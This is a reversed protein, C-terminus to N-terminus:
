FVLSKCRPLECMIELSCTLHINNCVTVFRERYVALTHWVAAHKMFLFALLFQPSFLQGDWSLFNWVDQTGRLPDSSLIWQTKGSPFTLTALSNPLAFLHVGPGPSPSPSITSWGASIFGVRDALMHKNAVHVISMMHIVHRDNWQLYLLNQEPLWLVSGKKAKKWRFDKLESPFGWCEKWATGCSLTEHELYLFLSRSTYFNDM